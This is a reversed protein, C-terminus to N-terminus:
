LSSDTAAKMLNSALQLGYLSELIPQCVLVLDRKGIGVIWLTDFSGAQKRSSHKQQQLAAIRSPNKGHETCSTENTM